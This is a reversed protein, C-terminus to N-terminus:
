PPAPPAPPPPPPPPSTAASVPPIIGYHNPTKWGSSAESPIVVSLKLGLALNATVLAILESEKMLQSKNDRFVYFEREKTMPVTGGQPLTPTPLQGSAALKKLRDLDTTNTM